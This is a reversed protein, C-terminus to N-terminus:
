FQLLVLSFAWPPPHVGFHEGMKCIINVGLFQLLVFPFAWPLPHAGFHEGRPWIINVGSFSCYFWDFHGRLPYVGFHGQALNHEGGLVATFGIFIGM